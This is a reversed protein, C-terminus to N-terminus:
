QRLKIWHGAPSPQTFLAHEATMQTLKTLRRQWVGQHSRHYCTQLECWQPQRIEKPLRLFEEGKNIFSSMTLQDNCKNAWWIEKYAYTLTPHQLCFLSVVKSGEFLGAPLYIQLTILALINPSAFVKSFSKTQSQNTNILTFHKLLALYNVYVRENLARLFM